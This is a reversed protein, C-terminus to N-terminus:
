SLFAPAGFGCNILGPGHGTGWLHIRVQGGYTYGERNTQRLPSYTSPYFATSPGGFFLGFACRKRGAEKCLSPDAM